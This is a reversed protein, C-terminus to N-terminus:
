RILAQTPLPDPASRALREQQPAAVNRQFRQSEHGDRFIVPSYPNGDTDFGRAGQAIWDYLMARLTRSIRILQPGEQPPMVEYGSPPLCNLQAYLLSAEPHGPLVRLIDPDRYSPAYILQYGGFQPDDLRLEGMATQNHCGVCGGALWIDHVDLPADPLGTGPQDYEMGYTIPEASLDDCQTGLSQPPTGVIHPWAGASTPLLAFLAAVTLVLARPATM